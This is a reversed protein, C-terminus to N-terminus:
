RQGKIIYAVIGLTCVIAIVLFSPLTKSNVTSAPSGAKQPRNKPLKLSSIFTSSLEAVEGAKDHEALITVVLLQRLPIYLVRGVMPAGNLSYSVSCSFLKTQDITLFQADTVLTDQYGVQQYGEQVDEALLLVTADTAFSSGASVINLSPFSTDAKGNAPKDQKTNWLGLVSPDSDPPLQAPVVQPPLSFRIGAQALFVEDAVASPLPITGLLGLMATAILRCLSCKLPKPTMM